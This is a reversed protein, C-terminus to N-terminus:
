SSAVVAQRLIQLAKVHVPSIDVALKGEIYEIGEQPTRDLMLIFQATISGKYVKQDDSM